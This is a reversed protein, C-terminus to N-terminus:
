HLNIQILKNDLGDCKGCTDCNIQGKTAQAPCHTGDITDKRGVVQFVSWGLALARKTEEDTDCSAMVLGKLNKAKSKRWQHTYAARVVESDIGKLIDAIIDATQMDAAPDGFEGIRIFGTLEALVTVQRVFKILSVTDCRHFGNNIGGLAGQSGAVRKYVYCSGHKFKKLKGHLRLYENERKATTAHPCDGCASSGKSRVSDLDFGGNPLISIM